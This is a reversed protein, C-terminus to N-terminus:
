AFTRHHAIRLATFVTSRAQEYQCEAVAALRNPQEHEAGARLDPGLQVLFGKAPQAPDCFGHHEVIQSLADDSRVDVIRREVRKEAIYELVVAGRRQGAADPM